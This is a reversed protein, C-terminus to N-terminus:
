RFFALFFDCVFSRVFVFFSFLEHIELIIPLNLSAPSIQDVLICHPGLQDAWDVAALSTDVADALSTGLPPIRGMDVFYTCSKALSTDLVAALSTGLPPIHETDVFYTHRPYVYKM